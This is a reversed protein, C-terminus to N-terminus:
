VIKKGCFIQAGNSEVAEEKSPKESYEKLLKEARSYKTKLVEIESNKERLKKSLEAIKNCSASAATAFGNKSINQYESLKKHLEEIKAESAHLNQQHEQVTKQLM